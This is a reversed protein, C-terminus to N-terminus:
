RGYSPVRFIPDALRWPQRWPRKARYADLAKEMDAASAADGTQRALQIARQQWNVALDFRGSEALAMAATEALTADAQGSKILPEILQAARAGDRVGDAPAAALIRALAQIFAPQGSFDRVDRDLWVKADAYRGLRTALLARALRAAPSTPDQERWSQYSALAEEFRGALRLADALSRQAATFDPKLGVAKQFHTLARDPEGTEMLLGGINFHIEANGPRQILAAQYDRLAAPKDGTRLHLWALKLRYEIHNPDAAVAERVHALAADLRNEALAREGMAFAERADAGLATVERMLPDALIVEQRTEEGEALLARAKDADGLGRHALAAIYRLAGARPQLEIARDMWQAAQAFDRRANAIQALGVMAAVCDADGELAQRFRADAQDFQGLSRWHEGLEILAPAYGPDLRVAAQFCRFADERRAQTLATRGQFYLWRFNNPALESATEYHRAAGAFLKYAHYHMALRGYADALAGRDGAGRLREIAAEAEEIKAVRLPGLSSLDPRFLAEETPANTREGCAALLLAACLALRWSWGTM